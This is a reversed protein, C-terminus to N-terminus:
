GRRAERELRRDVARTVGEVSINQICPVARRCLRKHHCECREFESLCLDGGAWPGNRAPNTPGFLGVVPAGVAASLQLPGTDGAVVIAADRALALLDGLSTAPAVVAAGNSARAVAEALDREGPGWIVATPIDHRDRLHAAVAGFRDPAWRKNPWGAGPNVLAYRGRDQRGLAARVDAVVPSAPITLDAARQAPDAGWSAALALNMDVVHQGPMPTVRRSYFRAAVRERTHAAAFGIVERAGSMWAWGASKLLGQFDLAADYRQARLTRIALIASNFWQFRPARAPAPVSMGSRRPVVMVSDVAPVFQLFAAYRADVLWDIRAEPHARRLASVAPVAHVLDGLASLRVALLSVAM